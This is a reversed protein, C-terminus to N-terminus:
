RQGRKLAFDRAPWFNLVANTATNRELVLWHRCGQV